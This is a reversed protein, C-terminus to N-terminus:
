TESPFLRVAMCPGDGDDIIDLMSWEKPAPPWDAPRSDSGLGVIEELTLPGQKLLRGDEDLNYTFHKNGDERNIGFAHLSGSENQTIGLVKLGQDLANDIAIYIGISCAIEQRTEEFDSALGGLLGVNQDFEELFAKLRHHEPKPLSLGQQSPGFPDEGVSVGFQCTRYDELVFQGPFYKETIEDELAWSQSLIEDTIEDDALTAMRSFLEDWRVYDSEEISKRRLLSDLGAMVCFGNVDTDGLKRTVEQAHEYTM